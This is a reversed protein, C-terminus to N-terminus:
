KTIKKRNMYEFIKVFDSKYKKTIWFPPNTAFLTLLTQTKDLKMAQYPAFWRFGFGITGSLNTVHHWFLAPNFFVDGPELTCEYKDLFEMAPFQEYDPKDPEFSSFYYPARTVPPELVCAYDPPYISWHKKGYVQTFLNPGIASHLQTKTGKGGIFVQFTYSQTFRNRRSKLFDMDIDQVLEPHEDLLRNFRSYKKIEGEDMSLIVDRLTTQISAYDVEDFNTPAADILSVPDDGYKEAIFDPTWKNICPWHNAAGQMIVPIGKKLYIQQFEELSLRKRRDVPYTKGKGTKELKSLISGKLKSNQKQRNSTLKQGLFHEREWLQNYAKLEEPCLDKLQKLM